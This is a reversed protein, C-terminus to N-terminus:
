WSSTFPVKTLLLPPFLLSSTPSFGAVSPATLRPQKRFFLSLSSPLVRRACTRLNASLPPPEPDQRVTRVARTVIPFMCARPPQPLPNRACCSATGSGTSPHPSGVPASSGVSTRRTFDLGPCASAFFWPPPFPSVGRGQPEPQVPGPNLSGSLDLATGATSHATRLWTVALWSPPPLCAPGPLLRFPGFGGFLFHTRM